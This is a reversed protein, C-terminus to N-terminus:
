MVISRDGGVLSRSHLLSLRVRIGHVFAIDHHDPATRGSGRGRREEGLAPAAHHEELLIAM